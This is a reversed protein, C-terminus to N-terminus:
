RPLPSRRCAAAAAAISSCARCRSRCGPRWRWGAASAPRRATPTPSPSHGCGRHAGPRDGVRAIVANTVLSGLTEVPVERLAGGFAGVPTRVPAVIAARRMLLEEAPRPCARCSLVLILNTSIPAVQYLRTERFKREIDYEEAFGFGGHTQICVNAAEGSAEAALLKAMNAEAGCDTARSRLPARSRPGDTRGRAHQCLRPRDSVPHGPEAGIPAASCRASTRMTRSVEEHVMERRRRMRRRDPHARREHGLPHLPVGQGGRRGPQRRPSRMNDFFVETTAHNMMTRIPRITLAKGVGRAHRRHLGVPRRDEKRGARPAHHPRAAADPRFARRPQDLDEPRQRRIRRWRAARHHAPRHHRHRQDARHRRLGAPAARRQRDEAPVAAEARDIGHRLITGMTYMQAHCAGGNCGESQIKKSSRPRPPFASAPDRRYEEPILASLYGAETLATVFETPYDRGADLKRWYEGPFAACLRRVGDRIEPFNEADFPSLNM